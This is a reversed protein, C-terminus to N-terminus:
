TTYKFPIKIIVQTGKAQNNETYLDIIKVGIKEKREYNLLTLRDKNAKTAFSKHKINRLEKLEKSKERGIGNDTIICTIYNVSQTLEFVINLEREKRRHLLGHKLANEVYPQVLMTPIKINSKDAIGKIIISYNLLDEFRLKELELYQELAEEEEAITIFAQTSQHLYMRILDAFKGLYDGALNKQNLLIYEQISNLANFVFHPNMQSRLNELKLFVLEKEKAAQELLLSKEKEQQQLKKKFYVIILLILSSVTLIVFSLKKYFPKNIKFKINQVSTEQNNITSVKKLQFNYTDASLNNFTIQNANEPLVTWKKQNDKLKYFYKVHKEAMFGNTHFQFQVKNTEPSFDYKNKISVEEDEVMIKTFYFDSIKKSSFVKDKDIEYMGKNTVLILKNGCVVLDSVNLFSLGDKSTISNFTKTKTNFRQIGKSTVIWLFENYAKIKTIENSLLGDKIKYNYTTKDNKGIIGKTYTAFWVTGDITNDIDSTFFSKDQYTVIESQLNKNFREAENVFGIYCNNTKKNFHIVYSRKSALKKYSQTKINVIDSFNYGAFLFEDANIFSIDKANGRNRGINILKFTESNIDLLYGQNQFSILLKNKGNYAIKEVKQSTIKPYQKTENTIINKRYINGNMLGYVITSDNLKVLSSITTNDINKNKKVAINPVIFIGNRLTSFWYNNNKDKIIKTIIKDSFLHEEFLFKNNDLKYKYVGNDLCFWVFNDDKFACRLFKKKNIIETSINIIETSTKLNYVSLGKKNISQLFYNNGIKFSKTLRKKFGKPNILYKNNIQTGKKYQLLNNFTGFLTDNQIFATDWWKNKPLLPKSEKTKLDIELTKGRFFTIVKEKYFFFNPLQGKHNKLTKFHELNDHSNIFFFQGSINNCWLRNQNDFKLGFVSLGKKEPHTYKKFKRGDYRYLGKNAAIWIFGRKDEIIDYIEIDPLGDKETLHFTVPELKQAFVFLHLFFFLFFFRLKQLKNLKANM